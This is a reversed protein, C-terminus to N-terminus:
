DTCNEKEFEDYRLSDSDLWREYCDTSEDVPPGTDETIPLNSLDSSSSEGTLSNDEFRDGFVAPLGFAFLALVLGWMVLTGLMMGLAVAFVTKWFTLPDRPRRQHPRSHAPQQQQQWSNQYSM